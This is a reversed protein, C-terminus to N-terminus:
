GEKSINEEDTSINETNTAEPEPVVVLQYDGTEKLRVYEDYLKLCAWADTAAYNQQKESLVDAEWNSLQERKSIREGFFNAYLKALSKDVIGLESMHDQLDIFGSSDFDGRRHLAALDDKWSLGIKKASTSEMLRIVAPCLGIRNLRFLFCTDYTSVQLLAVKHSCGKKFSPRTETDFGLMPQSLLYDVAKEAERQSIIVVKRGPFVIRPLTPILKKDYKNYLVKM